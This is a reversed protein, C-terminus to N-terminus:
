DQRGDRLLGTLEAAWASPSAAIHAWYATGGPQPNRLFLLGGGINQVLWVGVGALAPVELLGWDRGLLVGPLWVM